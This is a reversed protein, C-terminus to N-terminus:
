MGLRRPIVATVVTGKGPTSEISFTGDCLEVREKMSRLGFSHLYEDDGNVLEMEFGQGNDEIKLHIRDGDHTVTVHALKARAHKGVNNLSEQIVRYIVTKIEEDVFREAGNEADEAIKDPPLDIEAQARTAPYFKMFNRCLESVAASLGLNDLVMSRMQFSIRKSEKITDMLHGVVEEITTLGEPPMEKCHAARTELLMKIASLSGGISDHIEKSLARRDNEMIKVTNQTMERTQQILRQLEANQHQIVGTRSEVERELKENYDKLIAEAEKRVSIDVSAGVHGHYKGSGSFRPSSWSELWRWAGDARKARVQGQFPRQERVTNRFESVYADADDPHLMSIWRNGRLEKVPLGFFEEYARNGFEVKGDKDVVWVIHPLGDAMIRFRSESEQLAVEARKGLLARVITPALTELARLDADGFGGPKNAMGIMGIRRNGRILPVGLFARLPPHGEPIGAYEPHGAVDNIYFGKGAWLVRGYIGRFGQGSPPNHGNEADPMKCASRGAESVAIHNVRNEPGLEGIFGYEAGTLEEVIAMCARGLELENRSTLTAQFVRNIGMLIANQRRVAEEAQKRKSIDLLAFMVGVSWDDPNLPTSRILADFIDGNKRQMLVEVMGTGHAEIRRYKERGVYEYAEDSPYLMRSDNGLVEDRTYGTIKEFHDNVETIVRDTVVGLGIPAARFMGALKREMARARKEAKKHQTVDLVTFLVGAFHDNHEFPTLRIIVDTLRGDKRLMRAEMAAVDSEAFQREQERGVYAYTEDSPYVIRTNRGILEHRAYGTISCFRDNVEQFVRDVVVGIGVPATRFIGRIWAESERLREEMKKRETIDYSVALVAYIDGKEDRLPTGHSVFHRGHSEHELRFEEGNLAARYYPEYGAATEPDLAEHITKGELDASIMGVDRVARGEALIYRLDRDVVFAGGGPLNAALVRYFMESKRVRAEAEKQPTIDMLAIRWAALKRHDDFVASANVRAHIIRGDHGILRMEHAAVGRGADAKELASFYVGRDDPHVLKPFPRDWFLSPTGGFLREAANNFREVNGAKDLTIFAVPADHYLGSYEARSRDIQQKAKRLEDNQLELEVHQVEVEHILRMIEDGDATDAAVNRGAAEGSKLLEEARRRLREFSENKSPNRNM